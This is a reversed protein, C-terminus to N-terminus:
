FNDIFKDFFSLPVYLINHFSTFNFLIFSYKHSSDEITYHSFHHVTAELHTLKFKLWVIINVKPCIGKPFTHIEKDVM